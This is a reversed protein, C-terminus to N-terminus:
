APSGRSPQRASAAAALEGRAWLSGDKHLNEHLTPKPRPSKAMMVQVVVNRALTGPSKPRM